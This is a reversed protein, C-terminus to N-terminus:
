QFSKASEIFVFGRNSRLLLSSRSLSFALFLQSFSTLFTLSLRVPERLHLRQDLDDAEQQPYLQLLRDDLCVGAHLRRSGARVAPATIVLLSDFHIWPMRRKISGLFIAQTSVENDLDFIIATDSDGAGEGMQRGVPAGGNAYDATCMANRGCVEGAACDSADTCSTLTSYGDAAAAAPALPPLKCEPNNEKALALFDVADPHNDVFEDWYARFGEVAPEDGGGQWYLEFGSFAEGTSVNDNSSILTYGLSSCNSGNAIVAPTHSPLYQFYDTRLVCNRLYEEEGESCGPHTGSEDIIVAQRGSAAALTASALMAATVLLVSPMTYGGSRDVSAQVEPKRIDEAALSSSFIRIESSRDVVARSSVDM